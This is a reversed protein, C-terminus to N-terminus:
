VVLPQSGDNAADMIAVAFKRSVDSTSLCEADQSDVFEQLLSATAAEMKVAPLMGFQLISRESDDFTAYAERGRQKILVEISQRQEISM